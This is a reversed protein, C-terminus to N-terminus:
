YKIWGFDAVLVGYNCYIDQRKNTRQTHHIFLILYIYM